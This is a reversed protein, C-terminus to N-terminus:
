NLYKIYHNRLSLWRLSLILLSLKQALFRSKESILVTCNKSNRFFVSIGDGSGIRNNTIPVSRITENNFLLVKNRDSNGPFYDCKEFLSQM